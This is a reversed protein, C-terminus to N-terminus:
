LEHSSSQLTRLVGSITCSSISIVYDRLAPVEVMSRVRLPANSAVCAFFMGAVYVESSIMISRHDSPYFISV